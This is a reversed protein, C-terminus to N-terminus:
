SPRTRGFARVEGVARRLADLQTASPSSREAAFALAMVRRAGLNASAGKLAHATETWSHGAQLADSLATLYVEASSLFLALLEGELQPDGDTFSSLHDIDIAPEADRGSQPAALRCGATREVLRLLREIDIPRGLYDIAGAAIYAESAESPPGIMAIPVDGADPRARLEDLFRPHDAVTTSLLILSPRTSEARQLADDATAVAEIPYGLKGLVVVVLDRSVAQEEALLIRPLPVATTPPPM